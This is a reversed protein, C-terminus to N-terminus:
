QKEKNMWQRLVLAILQPEQEALTRLHQANLETEVRQQAQAQANLEGMKAKANEEAERAEKELELRKITTEQQKAWAPQVVKRWLIWAIIAIFLYRAAIVLFNIFEPQKWLPIAPEEDAQSFASNVINLTDGREASYGMAEKVLANIQDMQAKSLAEPKGEKSLQYNVVVAVSLRELQGSNRKIHTLTRDLEYNTTEDKQSNYPQLSTTSTTAADGAAKAADGASKGSTIPQTLPATAPVPPQNSLAGPVGGVGNKNGQESASTQRSRIAMKNLDTNPRYQEATQENLTFDIQATVQARVNKSGVIPALIAQIRHQYDAEVDSTYKRQSTQLAQGGNQTLLHGNQDVITVNDPNLGSVASSILYSIANIQSADLTRGNNINVTVSASPQKQERIFMSPKPIALHVRVSRVPGLTEITRSLEGELGRQYNVQESFQSIGFKEKDLLEFGVAGGKPLGLQALKLRVDYVKDEPVMISGGHEFRYPVNMQALQTVIEGGDQDSISGYLVRYDPAKAWFLLGAVISIAAAVSFILVIKPNSRLKELVAAFNVSAYNKNGDTTVSM